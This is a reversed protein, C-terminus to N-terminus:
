FLSTQIARLPATEALRKPLPSLDGEFRYRSADLYPKHLEIAIWNRAERECAEGTTNSGAFPDLVLDGADTLFRVFFTPIQIPFRAPHPKVKNVKCLEMYRGNADNNGHILLNSPISGGRDIFKHTIVHGSPRIKARYGRRVLRVMDPSYANLVRQNNAKPRPTKSLWWLCNVSDKVRIKQVTVWEAPSPLKAPNYWYFEQALYFGVERVLSILLQFHYLSRTPRGPTWAGGIDIVFSGNDRLLRHIERAFPIFWSIYDRQNANGYEKKFHLAYPPSTFALNLSEAPLASMFALSDAVFAKGLKTEYLPKPTLNRGPEAM